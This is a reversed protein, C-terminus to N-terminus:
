DLLALPQRERGSPGGGLGVTGWCCERDEPLGTGAQTKCLTCVPLCSGTKATLPAQPLAGSAPLCAPLGWGLAQM